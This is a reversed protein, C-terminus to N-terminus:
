NEEVLEGAVECAIVCFGTSALSWEGVKDGATRASEGARTSAKNSRHGPGAWLAVNLEVSGDGRCSATEDRQGVPLAPRSRAAGAQNNEPVRLQGATVLTPYRSWPM